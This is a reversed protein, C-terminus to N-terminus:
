WAPIKLQQKFGLNRFSLHLKLLKSKMDRLVFAESFHKNKEGNSFIILDGSACISFTFPAGDFDHM